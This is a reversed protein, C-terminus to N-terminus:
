ADLLEAVSPRLGPVVPDGPPREDGSLVLEPRDPRAVTLTGRGADLLWVERGGAALIQAVKARIDASRESPSRIEIWLDPALEPFADGDPIAALRHRAIFAIDAARVIDPDRGLIFGPEGSLVECAM